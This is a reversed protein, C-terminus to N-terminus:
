WKMSPSTLYQVAPSRLSATSATTVFTTNGTQYRFNGSPAGLGGAVAGGGTYWGLYNSASTMNSSGKLVFYKRALAVTNTGIVPGINEYNSTTYVSLKPQFKFNSLGVTTAPVFSVAYPYNSPSVLALNSANGVTL